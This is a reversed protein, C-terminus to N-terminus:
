TSMTIELFESPGIRFGLAQLRSVIDATGDLSRAHEETDWTSVAVSRGSSRDVAGVYTQNGPMGRVLTFLETLVPRATDSSPTGPDAWQGTTVRLYM